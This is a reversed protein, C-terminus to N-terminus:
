NTEIEYITWQKARKGPKAPNKMIEFSLGMYQSNGGKYDKLESVLIAGGVIEKIEGDELDVVPIINIEKDSSLGTKPDIESVTKTKIADRIHVFYSKGEEIKLVPVTVVGKRKFAVPAPADSVATDTVTETNKAKAMTYGKRPNNAPIVDLATSLCVKAFRNLGDLPMEM